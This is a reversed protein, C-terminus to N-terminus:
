NDQVEKEENLVEIIENIKSAIIRENDDAIPILKEIKEIKKPKIIKITKKFMELELDFKYSLTQIGDGVEVYYCEGNWEYILCDIAIKEPINSNKIMTLLEYYSTM